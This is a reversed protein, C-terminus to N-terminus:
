ASNKSAAIVADFHEIPLLRDIYTSILTRVIIRPDVLSTLDTALLAFNISRLTALVQGELIGYGRFYKAIDLGVILCVHVAGFVKEMIKKVQKKKIEDTGVGLLQYAEFIVLLADADQM